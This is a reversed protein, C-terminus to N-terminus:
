YTGQSRAREHASTSSRRTSSATRPRGSWCCQVRDRERWGLEHPTLTIRERLTLEAFLSGGIVVDLHQSLAPARGTTDDTVLLLVEEGLLM